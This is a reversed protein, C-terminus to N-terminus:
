NACKIVIITPIPDNSNEVESNIRDKDLPNLLYIIIEM